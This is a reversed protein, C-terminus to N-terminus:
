LKVTSDLSMSLIEQTTIFIVKSVTKSHGKVELYPSAMQQVDYVYFKGISTGFAIQNMDFPNCRVGCVNMDLSLLAYSHPRMLDYLKVTGDKSCSVFSHNDRSIWDIGTVKDGHELYSRQLHLNDMDYVDIPGCLDGLLICPQPSGGPSFRM